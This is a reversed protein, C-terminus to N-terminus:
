RAPDPPAADADTVARYDRGFVIDDTPAGLVPAAWAVAYPAADTPPITRAASPQPSLAVAALLCALSSPPM